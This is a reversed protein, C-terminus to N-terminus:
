SHVWLDTVELYLVVAAMKRSILPISTHWLWPAIWCEKRTPSLGEYAAFSTCFHHTSQPRLRQLPLQYRHATRIDDDETQEPDITLFAQLLQHYSTSGLVNSMHWKALATQWLLDRIRELLWVRKHGCTVRMSKAVSRQGTNWLEIRFGCRSRYLRYLRSSPWPMLGVFKLGSYISQCTCLCVCRPHGTGCNIDAKTGCHWRQQLGAGENRATM